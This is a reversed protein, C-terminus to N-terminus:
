YIIKCKEKKSKIFKDTFIIRSIPGCGIGRMKKDEGIFFKNLEDRFTKGASDLKDYEIYKKNIITELILKATYM